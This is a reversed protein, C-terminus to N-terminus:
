KYDTVFRGAWSLCKEITAPYAFWSYRPEDFERVRMRLIVRNPRPEPAAPLIPKQIAPSMPSSAETMVAAFSPFSSTRPGQARQM